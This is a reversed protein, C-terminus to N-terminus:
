SWSFSESQHLGLRTIARRNTNIMKPGAQIHDRKLKRLRLLSAYFILGKEKKPKVKKEKRNSFMCVREKAIVFPLPVTSM